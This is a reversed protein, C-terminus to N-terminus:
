VTRGTTGRPGSLPVADTGAGGGPAPATVVRMLEVFTRGGRYLVTPRLGARDALRPLAAVGAVAWPFPRGTGCRSRVRAQGRWVGQQSPDLEVLVSGAPEILAEARRLLAVPDGGIGLNGDALLVHAWTGEGPLAAFVDAHVATVGRRRCQAIAEAATDVGLAPVGRAALAELLRGPGCGLDLTAGRCRGLLWSDEGAAAARWRDVDLAAVGGDSRLLEARHAVLAPGFAAAAPPASPAAAPRASPAAAPRASSAAARRSSPVTATM